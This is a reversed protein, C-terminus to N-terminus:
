FRKLLIKIIHSIKYNQVKSKEIYTVNGGGFFIGKIKERPFLYMGERIEANEINTV